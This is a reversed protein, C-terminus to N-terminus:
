SSLTAVNSKRESDKSSGVYKSYSYFGITSLIILVISTIILEVFTFAQKKNKM